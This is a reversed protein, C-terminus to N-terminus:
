DDFTVSNPDDSCCNMILHGFLLQRLQRRSCDVCGPETPNTTPTPAPQPSPALTPRPSIPIECACSISYFPTDCNIDNWEGSSHRAGLSVCDEGDGWDNGM